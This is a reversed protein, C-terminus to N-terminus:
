LIAPAARKSAAAQVDHGLAELDREAHWQRLYIDLAHYRHAIEDDFILPHPGFARPLRRLIDTSHQEILHRLTRARIRAALNDEPAQDIEEGAQHLCAKMAWVAAAIAAQHARTHSDSRQHQLAYDALGAAGGAWCAAPGCAGHWFGPRELYWGPAGVFQNERIIVRNFDVQATHTNAFASTKWLKLDFSIRDSPQRLDVDVLAPTETGVTVLARDLLGAGTCFAKTGSLMWGDSTPILTLSLGPKQAAWVGYLAGPEPSLRAEALIAVADFHAEALRALSLDERAIEFLLYHRLATQGQAPVPMPASAVEHLRHLLQDATV